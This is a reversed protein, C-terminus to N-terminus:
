AHFLFLEAADVYGRVILFLQQHLPQIRQERDGVNFAHDKRSEFDPNFPIPKGTGGPSLMQFSATMLCMNLDLARGVVLQTDPLLLSPEHHLAHHIDSNRIESQSNFESCM